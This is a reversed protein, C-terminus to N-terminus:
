TAESEEVRGDRKEIQARKDDSLDEYLAKMKNPFVIMREVIENVITFLQAVTDAPEGEVLLGPHVHDNGTVRVYDLAQQLEPPLGRGVLDGIRENLNNGKADLDDVLKEVARRLLAAAASPSANAVQRAEEFDKAVDEPTEPNPKPATVLVPYILANSKWLAREHCRHCESLTLDDSLYSGVESMGGFGPFGHYGILNQYWEQKAFADCHPCNFADLGAQPATYPAM